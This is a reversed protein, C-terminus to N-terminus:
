IFLDADTFAVIVKAFESYSELALGVCMNLAM